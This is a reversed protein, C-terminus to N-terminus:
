SMRKKIVVMSAKEEQSAPEFDAATFSCGANLVPDVDVQLSGLKVKSEPM